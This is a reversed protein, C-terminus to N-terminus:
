TRVRSVTSTHGYVCYVVTFVGYVVAMLDSGESLVCQILLQLHECSPQATFIAARFLVPSQNSVRCWAGVSGIQSGDATTIAMAVKIYVPLHFM